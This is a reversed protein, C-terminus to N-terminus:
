LCDGWSVESTKIGTPIYLPDEYPVRIRSLEKMKPLCEAAKHTPFQGALSDHVQLLVQVEPLKEHFNRWARNIVGGVTSQPVWAVAKPLELRDFMYWRYGVRNEVFRFQTMQQEVKRWYPEITPHVALYKKQAKDVEHITWGTHESVTKSSGVYDTAHCFVKSFERKGKLPTRHDWYKPHSEVLENLPPPEKGDLMYAHFLHADVGQKLMDKYLEDEIEWVFVYLDARDLDM